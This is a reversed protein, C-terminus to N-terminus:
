PKPYISAGNQDPEEYLCHVILKTYSIMKRCLKNVQNSIHFLITVMCRCLRVIIDSTKPQIRTFYKSFRRETGHKWFHIKPRTHLSQFFHRHLFPIVSKLLHMWGPCVHVFQDHIIQDCTYIIMNSVVRISFNVCLIKSVFTKNHLLRTLTSVGTTFM